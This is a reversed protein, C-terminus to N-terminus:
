AELPQPCTKARPGTRWKEFDAVCWRRQRQGMGVARRRGGSEQRGEERMLVKHHGQAWRSLGPSGARRLTRLKIVYERGASNPYPCRIQLILPPCEEAQGMLLCPFDALLFSFFTLHESLLLSSIVRTRRKGPRIEQPQQRRGKPGMLCWEDARGITGSSM